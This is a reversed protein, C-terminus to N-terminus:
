EGKIKSNLQKICTRNENIADIIKYKELLRLFKSDEDNCSYPLQIKPLKDIDEM